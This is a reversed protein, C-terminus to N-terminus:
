NVAVVILIVAGLVVRYIVFSTLRHSGLFAILFKISAYGVIFSVITAVLVPAVDLHKGVNSKLELLGSLVVAPISLLFSVRAAAARDFGLVRGASITSGSRSVGPILALAQALGMIWGDRLRTSEVQRDERTARDCIEMIIGGVILAIAVLVVNRAGGEIQDKLLLGVVSIPITGVVIVWGLRAEPTGRRESNFWSSIWAGGVAVIDRRFAIVIALMTGLQIIATFAAGPDKWGFAKPVILLHGSSSIPLFETLGQVIGLVIAHLLNM